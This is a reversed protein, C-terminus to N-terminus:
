AAQRADAQRAAHEEDAKRLLEETGELFPSVREDTAYKFLLRWQIMRDGVLHFFTTKVEDSCDVTEPPMTVMVDIAKDLKDKDTAYSSLAGALAFVGFTNSPYERDQREAALLKMLDFRAAEDEIASILVGAAHLGMQGKLSVDRALTSIKRDDTRDHAYLTDSCSKLTRSSPAALNDNAYDEESAELLGPNDRIFAQMYPHWHEKSSHEILGEHVTELRIFNFRDRTPWDLEHVNAGEEAANGAGVVFVNRGFRHPGCRHDTLIEFSSKRMADDAALIEDLFVIYRKTQPTLDEDAVYEPLFYPRVPVTEFKGPEVEAIRELGRLAGIDLQLLRVDIVECGGPFMRGIREGVKHITSSKGTGHKGMLMIRQRETDPCTLLEFVVQQADTPSLVAFNQEAM